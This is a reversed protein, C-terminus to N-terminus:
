WLRWWPKKIQAPVEPHGTGALHHQLLGPTPDSTGAPRPFPKSQGLLLNSLLFDLLQAQYAKDGDDASGALETSWLAEAVDAGRATAALALRYVPQGTWSRHFFLHPADYYIFWKDEMERPILGGQLRLLQRDSFTSRYPLPAGETFPIRKWSAASASM